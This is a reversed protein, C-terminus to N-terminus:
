YLRISDMEQATSFTPMPTKTVEVTTIITRALSFVMTLNSSHTGIRHTHQLGEADTLASRASELKSAKQM